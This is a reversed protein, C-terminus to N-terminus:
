QTLTAIPDELSPKEQLDAAVGNARLSREPLDMDTRPQDISSLPYM